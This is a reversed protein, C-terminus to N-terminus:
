DAWTITKSQLFEEVGFNANFRGFGSRKVGGHPLNFYDHVTMHNIHVARKSEDAQHNYLYANFPSLVYGSEIQKAVRFGTALDTTFISASLGYETDNAVTIAEDETNFTLLSVTPGFSEQRYIDMKSSVNELIVPRMRTVSEEPVSTDGMLLSAGQSLAQTILTRNKMVGTPSIMILAPATPPFISTTANRLAEAFQKRISSHVLIRETAM